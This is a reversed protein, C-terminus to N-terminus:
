TNFLAEYKSPSFGICRITNDEDTFIPRKFLTPHDLIAQVAQEDCMSEKLETPLQQWTKSRKNIIDNWGAQKLWFVITNTDLPSTRVDHFEYSIGNSSLWHSAKRITDCQKIGYIRM